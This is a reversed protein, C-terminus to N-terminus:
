PGPTLRDYGLMQYTTPDFAVAWVQSRGLTAVPGWNGSGDSLTKGLLNGSNDYVMVTKGAVPIGNEQVQGSVGKNPGAPFWVRNFGYWADHIVVDRRAQTSSVKSPSAVTSTKAPGYQTFSASRRTVLGNVKVVSAVTSTKAPGYQTFSASRYAIEGNVASTFISLATPASTVATFGSPITYTFATDGFNMTMADNTYYLGFGPSIGGPAASLFTSISLGGTNTAPDATGSGNWNGGNVRFWIKANGYDIAVSIVSGTTFTPYGTAISNSLYYVTGLQSMGVGSNSSGGPYTNGGPTNATGSVRPGVGVLPANSSSQNNCTCEFYWKGSNFMPTGYSWTWNNGITQTAKTNSVSLTINGNTYAPVLSSTM